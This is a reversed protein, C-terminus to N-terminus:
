FAIGIYPRVTDAWPCVGHAGVHSPGVVLDVSDMWDMLDMSRWFRARFVLSERSLPAFFFSIDVVPTLLASLIRGGLDEPVEGVAIMAALDGAGSETPNATYDVLLQEIRQRRALRSRHLALGAAAALILIAAGAILVYRCRKM